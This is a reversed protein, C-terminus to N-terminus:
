KLLAEYQDKTLELYYTDLVSRDEFYQKRHVLPLTTQHHLAEKLQYLRLRKPYFIREEISSDEEEAACDTIADEANHQAM